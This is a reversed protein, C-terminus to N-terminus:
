CYCVNKEVGKKIVLRANYEEYVYMCKYMCVYVYAYMCAYMYVFM